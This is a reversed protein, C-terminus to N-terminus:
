ITEAQLASRLEELGSDLKLQSLKTGAREDSTESCSRFTPHRISDAM